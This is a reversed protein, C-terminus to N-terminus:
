TSLLLGALIFAGQLRQLHTMEICYNVLLLEAFMERWKDLLHGGFMKGTHTTALHASPWPRLIQNHKLVHIGAGPVQRQVLESPVLPTVKPLNSRASGQKGWQLILTFLAERMLNDYPNFQWYRYFLMQSRYAIAIIMMMMTTMKTNAHWVVRSTWPCPMSPVPATGAEHLKWDLSSISMWWIM